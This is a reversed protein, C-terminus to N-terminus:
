SISVLHSYFYWIKLIMDNPLNQMISLFGDPLKGHLDGCVISKVLEDYLGIKVKNSVELDAESQLAM